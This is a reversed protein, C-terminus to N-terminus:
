NQKKGERYKKPTMGFHKSFVKFFNGRNAFGSKYIIEDVSLNTTILLREAINLRFEKILDNPTKETINKLKRYLQRSSISLQASIEEISLDPNEINEEIIHLLREFFEKDNKHIVRGENVDVSSYISNYYEKLDEKRKLLGDIVKELYKVHFPKTIYVEAGSEIGEVQADIDNKASLMILPIHSLMKDSKIIKALSIGDIGPMMVDSIILDPLHEKLADYAKQSDNVTIVSFKDKLIDSIFWLMSEDDDIVMIRHHHCSHCPAVDLNEQPHYPAISGSVVQQPLVVTFVTEQNLVSTVNIEGELLKVMNNCIALGLGNRSATGNYVPNEFDDLIRYRDFIHPINEERIGKGTNIVAIHLKNNNVFLEVKIRGEDETYKFANSILNTVIKNMCNSDSNWLISKEIQQVYDIKKSEALESFSLAINEVLDSVSISKMELTRNGTELRRFEILEQILGNLKEANHQILNAYKVIYDDAKPYSILKACPGYILTLPTCFEHTINTFFRLKSEYIEEKQQRNLKEIMTNKKMKYWKVSLRIGIYILLMVLLSYIFYALRTKYWPPIITVSLTNIASEKGTINNRYKVSLTYRGPSINTFTAVNSNGNEIWNDSLENIKYLYTYNNGNIYDIATFSISFFNQSYDLELVERGRSGSMFEHINYDKGFIALSSFRIPPTYEPQTSENEQITIFGNIGGFFLTGTVEDKFYAGDSFEMVGFENQQNYNQYTLQKMNFKVMGRNTSLWLNGHRDELIGHITNNPFGNTENFVQKQNNHLHALGYSTGFWYGDDNKIISFIDNLTQNNDNMDFRHINFTETNTNMRYAGHGRNGFWIISDNEKYSSFFYNYAQEGNHTIFRKTEKILPENRVGGLTAKIIGEGVTAIWLTTDNLECISHIYRIPDINHSFLVKKIKREKYSYYNLGGESGIWLLDKKSRAFVYVSNDNLLSNSKLLHEINKIDYDGTSVNYNNIKLIGDGKTGVWLTKKNDLLLGRVPTNIPLMSSNFLTSKISFADIFYMYVGQGDTGVWIIDQFKDKVMCFIGSRIDIDVIRFSTKMGPTAMLRLLGSTKFGIYYDEHHKVLSSIEGYKRIENHLDYIYYKKRTTLDYEYLGYAKDVFYVRNEEHFCYLLEEDHTYIASPTLNIDDKNYEINFTLIGKDRTVIWLLNQTTVVDLINYYDLGPVSVQKISKTKHDYYSIFNDESIIFVDRLGTVAFHSKRKFEKFLQITKNRVDFRNLGYNTQVWLVGEGTAIINEILNGSLNNAENTPKYIQINLGNYMNLGDCSGFWMLGQEDQAISLIASNSLGNHSSFQRLSYASVTQITFASVCIVILSRFYYFLNKM